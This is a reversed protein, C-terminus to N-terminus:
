SPEAGAEVLADILEAKRLGVYSVGVGGAIQRLEAVTHEEFSMRKDAEDSLHEDVSPSAEGSEAAALAARFSEGGRGEAYIAGDVYIRWSGDGDVEHDIAPPAQEPPQEQAPPEPYPMDHRRCYKAYADTGPVLVRSGYLSAEKDSLRISREIM